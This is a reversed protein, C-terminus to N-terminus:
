RPPRPRWRGRCRQPAVPRLAPWACLSASPGSAALREVADPLAGVGPQRGEALAGGVAGADGRTGHEAGETGHRQARDAAAYAAQDAPLSREAAVAAARRAVAAGVRAPRGAPVLLLAAALRALGCGRRSRAPVGGGAPLAAARRRTAADAPRPRGPRDPDTLDHESADAATTVTGPRSSSASRARRDGYAFAWDYM